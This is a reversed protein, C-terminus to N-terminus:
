ELGWIRDAEDMQEPTWTGIESLMWAPTDGSAPTGASELQGEPTNIWGPPRSAAAALTERLELLANRYDEASQSTDLRGIAQTAKQGEIETIQGGGKLSEFAQLFAQGELQNARSGFRRQPTGPVNQLPSLMGTSIDLAPDNLIGDISSIMAAPSSPSTDSEGVNGETMRVTGDPGVTLSM